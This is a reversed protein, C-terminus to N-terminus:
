VRKLPADLRTNWPMDCLTPADSSLSGKCSSRSNSIVGKLDKEVEFLPSVSSGTDVVEGKKKKKLELVVHFICPEKDAGSTGKVREIEVAITNREKALLDKVIAM